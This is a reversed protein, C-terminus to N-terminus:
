WQARPYNGHTLVKQIAAKIKNEEEKPVDVNLFEPHQYLVLTYFLDVAGVGSYSPHIEWYKSSTSYYRYRSCMYATFELYRCVFPRHDHHIDYDLIYTLAMHTRNSYELCIESGGLDCVPIFTDGIEAEKRRRFYEEDMLECLVTANEIALKQLRNPSTDKTDIKSHQQTKLFNKLLYDKFANQIIPIMTQKIDAEIKKFRTEFSIYVNQFEPYQKLTFNYIQDSSVGTGIFFDFEFSRVEHFLEEFVIKLTMIASVSMATPAYGSKQIIKIYKQYAEAVVKKVVSYGNPDFTPDELKLRYYVDCVITTLVTANDIALERLKAAAREEPTEKLPNGKKTSVKEKLPVEEILPTKEKVAAKEEISEDITEANDAKFNKCFITAVPSLLGLAILAKVLTSKVSNKYQKSKKGNEDSSKVVTTPTESSPPICNLDNAYFSTSNAFCYALAMMLSAAKRKINVAKFARAPSDECIKKYTM